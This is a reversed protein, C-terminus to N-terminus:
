LNGKLAPAAGTGNGGHTLRVTHGALQRQLRASTQLEAVPRRALRESGLALLEELGGVLRECQQQLEVGAELEERLSGVGGLSGVLAAQVGPPSRLILGNRTWTSACLRELHQM